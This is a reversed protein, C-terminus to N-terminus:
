MLHNKILSILRIIILFFARLYDEKLPVVKQRTIVIGKVSVASIAVSQLSLIEKM